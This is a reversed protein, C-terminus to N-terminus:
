RAEAMNLPMLTGSVSVKEITAHVMQGYLNEYAVNILRKTQM